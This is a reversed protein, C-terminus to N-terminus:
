PAKFFKVSVINSRPLNIIAYTGDASLAVAEIQQKVTETSRM